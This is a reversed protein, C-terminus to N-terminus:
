FVLEVCFLGDDIRVDVVKRPGNFNAIEKLAIITKSLM